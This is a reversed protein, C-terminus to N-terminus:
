PGRANSAKTKVQLARATSNLLRGAAAGKQGPGPTVSAESHVLLREPLALCSASFQDRLHFRPDVKGPGPHSTGWWGVWRFPLPEARSSGSTLDEAGELESAEAETSIKGCKTQYGDNRMSPLKKHNVM